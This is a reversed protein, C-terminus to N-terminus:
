GYINRVEEEFKEIERRSPAVIETRIQNAKQALEKREDTKSKQRSQKNVINQHLENGMAM